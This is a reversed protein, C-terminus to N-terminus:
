ASWRGAANALASALPEDGWDVVRVGSRRLSSTRNRREIRSLLHGPTDDLTPDPSVVTVLHGYADLRRAVSVMYDDTLPSFLILQADAPLRRRLRRLRITPFFQGETPTASLVPHTALLKRARVRHDNGSGPALWVEDPGFAAIGVRDGTRLLSSFAQSAADVSREVANEGDSDAALYAEERADILLVVTAAREQRFELTALEGTRAKRNWDIRKLPDGARYERTSQFELGAGGVDTAIRGTYQTTLGRLPLDATGDLEPMCRVVTEAEVYTERERSGSANRTVVQIPEWEHDGRVMTVTYGFTARKGPRLATGHRAAGDDVALASPVGDVLRLDPLTADGVNRVRVTVRVEDDPNPGDAHIEREIELHPVPADGSRAYAAYGVGVVGALLLGSQRGFAIAVGAALLTVAGIGAWRNTERLTM